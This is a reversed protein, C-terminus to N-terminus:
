NPPRLKRRNRPLRPNQPLQCPGFTPRQGTKILGGWAPQPSIGGAAVRRAKAAGGLFALPARVPLAGFLCLSGIVGAATVIASITGVDAILGSKLVVARTAAMPLFFALYIVISNRGCYRLARFLDSKAMLAAATVVACAGALGLGLSIFPMMEYGLYVLTSNLLGWALLGGLAFLPVAQARLWLTGFPDILSLLYLRAVDIAGHEHIM